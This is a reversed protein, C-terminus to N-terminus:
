KLSIHMGGKNFEVWCTFLLLDIGIMRTRVLNNNWKSPKNFDKRGVIKNQKYWLGIKWEGWKTKDKFKEINDKPKEFKHRFVFTLNVEGIKVRGVPM